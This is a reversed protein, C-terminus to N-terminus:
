KESYFILGHERPKACHGANGTLLKQGEVIAAARIMPDMDDISEGKAKLARRIESAKTVIRNVPWVVVFSEELMKEAGEIDKTGRQICEIVPSALINEQAQWRSQKTVEKVLKPVTFRMFKLFSESPNQEVLAHLGADLLMMQVKDEGHM